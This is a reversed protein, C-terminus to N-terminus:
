KEGLKNDDLIIRLNEKGLKNITRGNRRFDMELCAGAIDILSTAIPTAIDLITGLSELLVLGQPVDETIYRSDSTDPGSPASNQAYEMFVQKSDRNLDIANRFCCADFYTMKKINLKELVNNKEEDLKNVLNYISKTFVERYMSYNGNTYEIRPISMIAGITHVILNPNHLAAEVVSKTYTFNLNLSELKIKAEESRSKPFIGVPNRVNRFLAKVSGPNIVRCDIPSSEAEIIVPLEDKKYKLFYCTSLYGPILIIIQNKKVYPIIRRIIEEHYTTQVAIIVIEPMFDFAEKVNNTVLEVNAIKETKDILKIKKSKLIEDYNNDINDSTKLMAVNNGKISLDAALATGVNGTGIVLVRNM